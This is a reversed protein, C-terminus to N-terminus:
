YIILQILHSVRAASLTLAGYFHDYPPKASGVKLKPVGKVGQTASLHAAFTSIVAGSHFLGRWGKTSLILYYVIVLTM